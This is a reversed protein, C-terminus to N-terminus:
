EIKIIQNHHFIGDHYVRKYTIVVRPKNYLTRNDYTITDNLFTFSVKNKESITEPGYHTCRKGRFADYGYHFGYETKSDEHHRAVM